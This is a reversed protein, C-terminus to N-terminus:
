SFTGGGAEAITKATEKENLFLTVESAPEAYGSINIKETKTYQPLPNLSPPSPAIKDGAAQGTEGTFLKWFGGIYTLGNIGIFYLAAIVATIVGLVKLLSILDKRDDRSLTKWSQHLRLQKRNLLYKGRKQRYRM